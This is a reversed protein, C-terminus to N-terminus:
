FQCLSTEFDNLAAANCATVPLPTIVPSMLNNNHCFSWFKFEGGGGGGGGRRWQNCKQYGAGGGVVKWFKVVVVEVGAVWFEAM